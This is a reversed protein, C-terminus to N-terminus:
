RCKRELFGLAQALAEDATDRNVHPLNMVVWVDHGAVPSISVDGEIPYKQPMLISELIYARTKYKNTNLDLLAELRVTSSEEGMHVVVDITKELVYM